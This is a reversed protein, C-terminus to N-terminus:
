AADGAAYGGTAGNTAAPQTRRPLQFLLLEDLCISGYYFPKGEKENAQLDKAFAQLSNLVEQEEFLFASRCMKALRVDWNNWGMGKAVDPVRQSKELDWGWALCALRFSELYNQRWEVNSRLTDVDAESTVNFQAKSGDDIPFMWWDFHARHLPAWDGSEAVKRFMELTKEQQEKFREVVVGEKGALAAARGAGKDGRRGFRMGKAADWLPPRAEIKPRASAPKAGTDFEM